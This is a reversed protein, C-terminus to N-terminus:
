QSLLGPRSRLIIVRRSYHHNERELSRLLGSEILVLGIGYQGEEGEDYLSLSFRPRESMAKPASYLADKETLAHVSTPGVPRYGAIV